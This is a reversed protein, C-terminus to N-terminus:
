DLGKVIYYLEASLIFSDRLPKTVLAWDGRFVFFLITLTTPEGDKDERRYTGTPNPEALEPIRM